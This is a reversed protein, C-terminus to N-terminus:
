GRNPEKSLHAGSEIAAACYDLGANFAASWVRDMTPVSRPLGDRLYAVIRAREEGAITEVDVVTEKRM